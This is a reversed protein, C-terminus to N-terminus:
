LQMFVAPHADSTNPSYCPPASHSDQQAASPDNNLQAFCVLRKHCRRFYSYGQQQQQQQQAM